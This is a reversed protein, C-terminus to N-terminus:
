QFKRWDWLVIKFEVGNFITTKITEFGMKEHARLSRPNDSAVETILYQYQNSLVDKFQQYMRGALSRGRYGRRVCLQGCLLYQATKLETGNFVLEDIDNFLADLLQHKGRVAPHVAIAYGTVVDGHKAIVSPQLSHLEELFEVSYEATVFGEIKSEAESLNCKLNELQIQKIAHVEDLTQALKVDNCTESEM